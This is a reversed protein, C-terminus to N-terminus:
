DKLSSRFTIKPQFISVKKLTQKSDASTEPILNLKWTVTKPFYMCSSGAHDACRDVHFAFLYEPLALYALCTKLYVFKRSKLKKKSM